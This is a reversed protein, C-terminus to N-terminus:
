ADSCAVVTKPCVTGVIGGPWQLICKGHKTCACNLAGDSPPCTAVASVVAVGIGVKIGVIGVFAQKPRVNAPHDHLGPTLRAHRIDTVKGLIVNNFPLMTVVELQHEDHTDNERSKNRTKSPAIPLTAIYIGTQQSQNEHMM